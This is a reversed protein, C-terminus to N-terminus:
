AKEKYKEVGLQILAKELNKLREEMEKVSNSEQELKRIAQETLPYNCTSCYESGIENIEKCRPCVSPTNKEREELQVIGEARDIRTIDDEVSLRGYVETYFQASHGLKRAALDVPYNCMKMLYAASHRLNYWDLPKSIGALKGMIKIAKQVGPFSIPKQGNIWLASKNDKNPHTDIWKQLFPVSRVLIVQRKGTKHGESVFAIFKNGNRQIDGYKLDIFESPRFGGDLQMMLAAKMMISKSTKVMAEADNWNVMDQPRLDRKLKKKPIPKIDTLCKPKEGDNLWKLLRMTCAQCTAYFSLSRTERIEKFLRNFTSKDDLHNKLNDVKELVPEIHRFFITMRASTVDYIELFESLTNKNEDSIKNSKFIQERKRQADKIYNRAPM